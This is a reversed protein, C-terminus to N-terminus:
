VPLMPVSADRAQDVGEPTVGYAYAQDLLSAVGVALRVDAPSMRGRDIEKAHEELAFFLEERGSYDAGWAAAWFADRAELRLGAEEAYMSKALQVGIWAGMHPSDARGKIKNDLQHLVEDFDDLVHQRPDSPEECEGTLQVDVGPDYRLQGERHSVTVYPSVPPLRETSETSAAYTTTVTDGVRYPAPRTILQSAGLPESEFTAAGWLLNTDSNDFWRGYGDVGYRERVGRLSVEDHMIGRGPVTRARSIGRVTGAQPDEIVGVDVSAIGQARATPGASRGIWRTITGDPNVECDEKSLVEDRVWAPLEATSDPVAAVPRERRGGAAGSPAAAAVGPPVIGALAGATVVTAVAAVTNIRSRINRSM